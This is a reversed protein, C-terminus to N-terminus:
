TLFDSRRGEEESKAGVVTLRSSFSTQHMIEIKKLSLRSGKGGIM